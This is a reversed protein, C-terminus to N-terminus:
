ACTQKELNPDSMCRLKRSKSFNSGVPLDKMNSKKNCIITLHQM